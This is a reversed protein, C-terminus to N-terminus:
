GRTSTPMTSILRAGCSTKYGDFAVPIGDILVKPDGAAIVCGDHGRQLCTVYGIDADQKGANHTAADFVAKWAQVGRLPLGKKAEFDATAKTAPYRDGPLNSVHSFRPPPTTGGHVACPFIPKDPDGGQFAVMGFTGVRPLSIAGFHGGAWSTAVWVWASDHASIGDNSTFPGDRDAARCGPFRVLIRGFEDCHVEESEPGAVMVNLTETRPLDVRSDFAPVIAIDRRVCTFRNTYRAGRDESAQTLGASDARWHNLAFLRNVREGLTKPLNTDAKIRLETIVFEREKAPHSDIVPHGTVGIWQGACLDCGGSEGQHCKSEYEHRQM